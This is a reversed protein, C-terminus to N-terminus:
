SGPRPGDAPTGGTGEGASSAPPMEGAPATTPQPADSAAPAAPASAASSGAAAATARAADAASAAAARAAEAATSAQEALVKARSRADSALSRGQDALASDSAWSMGAQRARVILVVLHAAGMALAMLIWRFPQATSGVWADYSGSGLGSVDGAFAGNLRGLWLVPLIVATAALLFRRTALLAQRMSAQPPVAMALAVIGAIAVLILLYPAVTSTERLLGVIGVSFEVGSSDREGAGITGFFPLTVALTTANASFALAVVLVILGVGIAVGFGLDVFVEYAVGVALVVAVLSQLGLLGLTLWRAVDMNKYLVALLWPAAGVVLAALPRNSSEFGVRFFEGVFRADGGIAVLLPAVLFAAVAGVAAPLFWAKRVTLWAAVFGIRTLVFASIMVLGFPIASLSTDLGFMFVVRAFFGVEQGLLLSGLAPGLRFASGAMDEAAVAAVLGGLLSIALVVAVPLAAMALVIAPVRPSAASAAAPGGRDAGGTDQPTPM